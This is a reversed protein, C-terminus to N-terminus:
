PAASVATSPRSPPTSCAGPPTSTGPGSARLPRAPPGDRPLCGTPPSASAAPVQHPQLPEYDGDRRARATTAGQPEAAPRPLGLVRAPRLLEAFQPWPPSEPDFPGAPGEAVIAPLLRWADALPLPRGPDAVLPSCSAAVSSPRRRTFWRRPAPSTSCCRRAPWGARRARPVRRPSGARPTSTSRTRTSAISRASSRRSSGARRTRTPGRRRATVSATGTSRGPPHGSPRRVIPRWGPNGTGCPRTVGTTTRGSLCREGHGREDSRAVRSSIM